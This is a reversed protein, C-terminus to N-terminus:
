PLRLRLKEPSTPLSPGSSHPSVLRSMEVVETVWRPSRLRPLNM